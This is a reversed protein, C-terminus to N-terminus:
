KDNKAVEQDSSNKEEFYKKQQQMRKEYNNRREIAANPKEKKVKKEKKQKGLNEQYEDSQTTEYNYPDQKRKSLDEQHELEEQDLENEDNYSEDIQNKQKKHKQHKKSRSLVEESNSADHYTEEETKQEIPEEQKTPEEQKINPQNSGITQDNHPEPKEQHKRAPQLPQTQRPQQNVSERDDQFYQQQGMGQIPLIKDKRVFLLISVIFFFLPVLVIFLPITIVALLLFVIGSFLRWRMLVLGIFSFILVIILYIIFLWIGNQINLAVESASLLQGNATININLRNILSELRNLNDPNNLVVLAAFLSLATIGLVIIWALWGFFKEAGRSVPQKVHEVYSNMM